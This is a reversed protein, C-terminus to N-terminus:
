SPKRDRQRKWEQCQELYDTTISEDRCFDKRSVGAERARKWRELLRLRRSEETSSLEKRGRRRAAINKTKIECSGADKVLSAKIKQRDAWALACAYIERAKLNGSQVTEFPIEAILALHEWEEITKPLTFHRAELEKGTDRLAEQIAKAAEKWARRRESESRQRKGLKVANAVIQLRARAREWSARAKPDNELAKLFAKGAQPPKQESMAEGGRSSALYM